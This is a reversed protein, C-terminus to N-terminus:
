IRGNEDLGKQIYFRDQMYGEGHFVPRFFNKAVDYFKMFNEVQALHYGACIYTKSDPVDLKVERLVGLDERHDSFNYAHHTQNEGLCSDFGYLHIEKYGM